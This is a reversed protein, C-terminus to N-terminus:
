KVLAKAKAVVNEVTFGFEKFLIKAPASAGYHDITVTDGDLGVYKAWGFSSAAEIALRARVNNPLLAEEYEAPQEDFLEQCPMSIVRVKIEGKLEEYAKVALELESGTAMIIIDPTGECDKIIYAGKLAEKGTEAYLPLGQRSCAIATPKKQTIAFEYAAATEKADAPRWMYANPISRISALHEIPEHTAGDEGVGISDHTLIYIPGVDMIAAQRIAHKLYDSFVLFTAVYPQVGGHLFMGNGAAAMAFERIGFHINQGAYNAASFDGKGKMDSKNTPALDASGGFMKPIRAALKQLVLGSAERTAVGKEFTYFEEDFVEAPVDAFAAKYEAALEPYAAAYEEFMKNWAAEAAAYKEVKAACNEYVGEPVAFFEDAKFGLAEKLAAVNADGLPAGHSAAKGILADCGYAIDTRVIILTPKTTDAKAEAIAKSIADLDNNGDAVNIVGWGYAEYRKAVDEDFAININGEITIDNKDYIVILKGLKLTGALSSAEGSIGEELCGDGTFAITYHDVVNYGPKNFKAALHAEAMAMGVANAVGMGLPGTTTEIGPIHWYEPHGPTKSGWQRFQKLDELSVDYGFLHMTSYLLMSAHGASLIFRDRNQWSPNKPNNCLHDAFVTYAIPAAGLPTGPHGSNAKQIADASLTRITNVTLQDLKNM